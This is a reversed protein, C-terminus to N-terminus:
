ATFDLSSSVSRCHGCSEFLFTPTKMGSKSERRGLKPDRESLSDFFGNFETDGVALIRSRQPRTEDVTSTFQRRLGRHASM